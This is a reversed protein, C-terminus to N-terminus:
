DVQAILGETAKEKSQQQEFEQLRAKLQEIEPNQHRVQGELGSVVTKLGANEAKQESLEIKLGENEVEKDHVMDSMVEMSAQFRTSQIQTSKVTAAQPKPAFDRRLVGRGDDHIVAQQSPMVQGALSDSSSPAVMVATAVPRQQNDSQAVMVATAVPRQQNDSQRVEYAQTGNPRSQTPTKCAACQVNSGFPGSPIKEPCALCRGIITQGMLGGTMPSVERAEPQVSSEAPFVSSQELGSFADDLPLNLAESVADKQSVFLSDSDDDSQVGPKSRTGLRAPTGLSKKLNSSPEENEEEEEDSSDLVTRKRYIRKEQRQEGPVTIDALFKDRLFDDPPSEASALIDFLLMTLVECHHRFPFLRSFEDKHEPKARRKQAVQCVMIAMKNWMHTRFDARPGLNASKSEFDPGDLSAARNKLNQLINPDNRRIFSRADELTQNNNLGLSQIGDLLDDDKLYDLTAKRWYENSHSDPCM